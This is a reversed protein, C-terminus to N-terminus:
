LNVQMMGCAEFGPSRSVNNSRGLALDYGLEFLYAVMEMFKKNGDKGRFNTSLISRKEDATYFFIGGEDYNKSFRNILEESGGDFAIAIASVLNEYYGNISTGRNVSRSSSRSPYLHYFLSGDDNLNSLARLKHEGIRGVYWWRGYGKWESDM